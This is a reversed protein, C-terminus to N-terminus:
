CTSYTLLQEILNIWDPKDNKIVYFVGNQAEKSLSKYSNKDFENRKIWISAISEGCSNLIISDENKNKAVKILSDLAFDDDYEFLDMAADDRDAISARKNLLLNVLNELDM